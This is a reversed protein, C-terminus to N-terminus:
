RHHSSNRSWPTNKLIEAFEAAAAALQPQKPGGGPRKAREGGERSSDAKSKAKAKAKAQIDREREADLYEYIKEQLVDDRDISEYGGEALAKVTATDHTKMAKLLAGKLKTAESAASSVQTFILANMLLILFSIRM